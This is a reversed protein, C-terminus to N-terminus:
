PRVEVRFMHAYSGFDFNTATYSMPSGLAQRWDSLPVCPAFNTSTQVQYIRGPIAAWQLQVLRNSQVTVSLIVFRSAANTPNTGAIFEAYDPM